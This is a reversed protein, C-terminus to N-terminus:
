FISLVGSYANRRERRLFVRISQEIGSDLHRYSLAPANAPSVENTERRWLNCDQSAQQENDLIYTKFIKDM